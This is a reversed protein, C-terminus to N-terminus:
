RGLANEAAKTLTSNPDGKAWDALLKRAADANMWQLAQVARVDSVSTTALVRDRSASEIRTKAEASPNRWGNHCPVRGPGRAGCSRRPWKALPSDPRTSTPSGSGSRQGDAPEQSRDQRAALRHRDGAAALLRAASRDDRGPCITGARWTPQCRSRVEVGILKRWSSTDWIELSADSLSVAVRGGDPSFEFREARHPTRLRAVTKKVVFPELVEVTSDDVVRLVYEGGPGLVTTAQSDLELVRVKQRALLEWLDYAIPAQPTYRMTNGRTVWKSDYGACLLFNGQVRDPDVGGFETALEHVLKGDALSYCRIKAPDSKRPRKPRPVEGISVYYPRGRRSRATASSWGNRSRRSQIGASPPSSYENDHDFPM